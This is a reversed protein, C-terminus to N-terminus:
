SPSAPRAPPAAGGSVRGPPQASEPRWITAVALVAVAPVIHSVVRDLSTRMLWELDQSTSFYVGALVVLYATVLRWGFALAPDRPRGRAACAAILALAAVPPWSRYIALSAFAKAVLLARWPWEAVPPMGGIQEVDLQLSRAFLYWGSGILVPVFLAVRASGQRSILLVLAAALVAVALGENKGLAALTLFWAARTGRRVDNGGDTIEIVVGLVAVSMVIDATGGTAGETIPRFLVLALTAAAAVLAPVRRRLFSWALVALGILWLAGAFSAVASSAVGAHRFMWWQLLPLALPYEPHAFEYPGPKAFMDPPLTDENFLVRAKLAWIAWGDWTLRDTTATFLLIALTLVAGAALWGAGTTMPLAHDADTASTTDQRVFPCTVALLVFVAYVWWVQLEIQAIIAISGIIALVCTGIVVELVADSWLGRRTQMLQQVLWGIAWIPLLSATALVFTM